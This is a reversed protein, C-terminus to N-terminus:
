ELDVTLPFFDIGQRPEKSATATVLIVTDGWQMLVAAGAQPALKGTRITIPERGFSTTFEREM